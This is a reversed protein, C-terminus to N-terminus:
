QAADEVRELASHAADVQSASALAAADRPSLAIRYQALTDGIASCLLVLGFIGVAIGASVSSSTLVTGGALVTAFMLGVIIVGLESGAALIAVAIGSYGTNDSVASTYQHINGMLEVAGGLGAMVGGILLVEIMRRRAPIGAYVSTRQSAGLIPLEYGLRTTRLAVAMVIGVGIALLFGWHVMVPGLSVHALESQTPIPRSLVGAVVDKEAWPGAAWYTLWYLGVFNLMLTTIIENVGILARALAPLLIWLAGGLAAGVLMTPILLVGSLHPLSFAIATAVWAGVYMQGDGGINWLGMRYPISAALGALILPAALVCIAELGYVSGLTGTWLKSYLGAGV